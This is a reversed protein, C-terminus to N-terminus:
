YSNSNKLCTISCFYDRKFEQNYYTDNHYIFGDCGDCCYPNSYDLSSIKNKGSNILKSIINDNILIIEEM